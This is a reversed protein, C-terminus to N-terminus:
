RLVNCQPIYLHVGGVQGVPNNNQYTSDLTSNKVWEVVKVIDM